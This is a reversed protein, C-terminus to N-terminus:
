ALGAGLGKGAIALLPSAQLQQALVLLNMTAMAFVSALVARDLKSARKRATPEQHRQFM